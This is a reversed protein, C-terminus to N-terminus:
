YKQEEMGDKWFYFYPTMGDPSYFKLPVMGTSDIQEGTYFEFEDFRSLITAVFDRAGRQFAVARSPNTKNILDLLKKVYAKIHVVYSEKNYQTQVLHHNDVLNNVTVSSEDYAEEGEETSPNAGINYSGNLSKTLNKTEVEYAVGFVEKFPLADSMMEDKTFVDKFIKM